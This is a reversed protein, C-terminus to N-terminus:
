ANRAAESSNFELVANGTSMAGEEEPFELEINVFSAALGMSPLIKKVFLAKIKAAKDKPVKPLGLM